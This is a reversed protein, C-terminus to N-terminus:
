VVTWLYDEEGKCHRVSVLFLKCVGEFSSPDRARCYQGAEGNRARLHAGFANEVPM